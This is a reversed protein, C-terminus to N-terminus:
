IIRAFFRKENNILQFLVINKIVNRNHNWIFILLHVDKKTEDKFCIRHKFKYKLQAIESRAERIYSLEVEKM